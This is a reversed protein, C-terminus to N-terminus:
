SAAVSPLVVCIRTGSEASSTILLEGGHADVIRKVISLGLGTGQSKTTYFPEALRQLADPPIPEGDNTVSVSVTGASADSQLQWQITSHDPAAECANRLLNLFVQTLRDWDAIASGQKGSARFAITQHRHESLSRNADLFGELAETLGVRALQLKLPKAYLLIDELLREMREVESAALEARRQAPPPLNSRKFYDLALAITALPNRIEHAISSAFEGIAALRAQEVLKVTKGFSHAVLHGINTLLELHEPTYAHKRRTAFALLSPVPTNDTLPLFIASHMGKESLLKAFRRAPNEAAAQELDAIHLPEGSAMAEKLLTGELSYRRHEGVEAHADAFARELVMCEKDGTLFLSGVWDIPLIAGFEEWVFRLTSDLDSGSQIRDILRFLAHLRVSLENFSHTMWGIENNGTVAVQHGFDGRSVQRFGHVARELPRLVTAYFWVIIALTIILALFLVIRNVVTIQGVRQVVLRQYESFVADTAEKLARRSNVIHEAAYELRPEAPNNGLADTLEESFEAWTEQLQRVAGRTDDDLLPQVTRGLATLEPSFSGDMFADTIENFTTVYAMLDRYYLRVDRYYTPYDRPANELYNIGQLHLREATDQLKGALNLVATDSQRQEFQRFTFVISGAVLLLLLLLTSAIQFRLTHLFSSPM